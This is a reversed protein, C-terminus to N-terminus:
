KKGSIGLLAQALPGLFKFMMMVLEMISEFQESNLSIVSDSSNDDEDDESDENDEDENEDEDENDDEDEELKRHMDERHKYNRIESQLNEMMDLLVQPDKRSSRLHNRVKKKALVSSTQMALLLISIVFRTAKM